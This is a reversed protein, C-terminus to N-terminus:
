PNKIIGFHSTISEQDNGSSKPHNQSSAFNRCKKSGYHVRSGCIQWSKKWFICFIHSCGQVINNRMDLCKPVGCIESFSVATCMTKPFDNWLNKSWFWNTHGLTKLLFSGLAITYDSYIKFIRSYKLFYTVGILDCM